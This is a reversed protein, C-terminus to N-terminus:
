KDGPILRQVDLWKLAGPTRAESDEGSSAICRKWGLICQESDAARLKFQIPRISM